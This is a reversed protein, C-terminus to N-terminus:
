KNMGEPGHDSGSMVVYLHNAIANIHSPFTDFAEWLNFLRRSKPEGAVPGQVQYDFAFWSLIVNFTASASIAFLAQHSVPVIAFTATHVIPWWCWATPVSKRAREQANWFCDEVRSGTQLSRTTTFFCIHAVPCMTLQDVVIKSAVSSFGRGPFVWQLTSIWFHVAPGFVAGWAAMSATRVPSYQSSFSRNSPDMRKHVAFQAVCDSASLILSTTAAKRALGFM